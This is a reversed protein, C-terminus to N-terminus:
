FLYAQPPLQFDRQNSELFINVDDTIAALAQSVTRLAPPMQRRFPLEGFVHLRVWERNESWGHMHTGRIIAPLGMRRAAPPNPESEGEPVIDIRAILKREMLVCITPKLLRRDVTLSLEGRQIGLSDVIGWRATHDSGREAGWGPFTGFLTKDEAIWADVAEIEAIM